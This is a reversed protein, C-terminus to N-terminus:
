RSEGQNQGVVAESAPHEPEIEEALRSEASLFEGLAALSSFNDAFVKIVVLLPVGIITGVIGWMWTTLSLFILIAVTNMELRRGVILPTVFNSEVIQLALYALPVLAAEALTPYTVIAVAAALTNGIFGGLYPIFNLLGAAIGWLLPNPMGLAAMALGVSLGFGANIATITLLYRSVENEIDRLV